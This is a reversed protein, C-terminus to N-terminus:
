DNDDGVPVLLYKKNNIAICDPEISQLCHTKTTSLQPLEILNAEFIEYIKDVVDSIENNSAANEVYQRLLWTVIDVDSMYTDMGRAGELIHKLLAEVEQPEEPYLCDLQNIADFM